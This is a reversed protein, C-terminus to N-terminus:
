DATGVMINIREVNLIWLMLNCMLFGTCLKVKTM